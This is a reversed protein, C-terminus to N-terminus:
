NADTFSQGHSNAGSCKSGFKGHRLLSVFLGGRRKAIVEHQVHKSRQDSSSERLYEEEDHM